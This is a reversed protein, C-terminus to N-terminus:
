SELTGSKAMSASTPMGVRPPGPRCAVGLSVLAIGAVRAVTVARGDLLGCARLFWGLLLLGVAAIWSGAVRAAVRMWPARLAVVGGAVLAVAVFASPAMGILALAGRNATAIGTGNMWGHLLGLLIALGTLLPLPLGRDAAVLVGLVIASLAAVPWTPDPGGAWYGALGGALWACPLSFLVRRGGAAGNLGGLLALALVPLVDDLTLFFHSIGDYV